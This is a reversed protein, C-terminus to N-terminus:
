GRVAHVVGEVNAKPTAPPISCGHALLCRIRETLRIAELAEDAVQQASSHPLTSKESIGGMVARKTHSKGEALNPNGAFTASWSIAQVPYDALLDFMIHDGCNHL